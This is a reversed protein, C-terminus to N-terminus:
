ANIAAPSSGRINELFQEWSEQPNIGLIEQYVRENEQSTSKRQLTKYLLLYKEKGFNNILYESFAAALAYYQRAFDDSTAIWADHSTLLDATVIFGEENLAEKVVDTFNNGYWDHGVMREAIGEQLFGISLGLPLSLLHTDEHPGIVRDKESYLAHIAFDNYISQAFWPTGMLKEKTHADPYLYYSIKKDVSPLELFALIQRYAREQTEVIKEIEKEALSDKFYHFRYHASDRIEWPFDKFAATYGPLEQEYM